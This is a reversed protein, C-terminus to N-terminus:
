DIMDSGCSESIEIERSGLGGLGARGARARLLPVGHLVLLTM